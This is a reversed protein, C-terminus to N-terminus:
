CTIDFNTISASSVVNKCITITSSNRYTLKNIFSFIYDRRWNDGFSYFAVKTRIICEAKAFFHNIFDFNFHQFFSQAKYRCRIYNVLFIKSSIKTFKTSFHPTFLIEPHVM